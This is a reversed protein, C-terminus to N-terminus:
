CLQHQNNKRCLMIVEIALMVAGPLSPMIICPWKDPTRLIEANDIHVWASLEASAILWLERWRDVSPTDPSLRCTTQFLALSAHQLLFHVPACDTQLSLLKAHILIWLMPRPNFYGLPLIATTIFVVMNIQEAHDPLITYQVFHSCIWVFLQFASEYKRDNELRHAKSKQGKAHVDTCVHRYVHLM